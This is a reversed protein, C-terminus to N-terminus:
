SLGSDSRSTGRWRHITLLSRRPRARQQERQEQEELERGRQRQAERAVVELQERQGADSAERGEGQEDRVPPSEHLRDQVDGPRRERGGETRTRGEPVRGEEGYM